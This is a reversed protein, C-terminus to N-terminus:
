VICALGNSSHISLPVVVPYWSTRHRCVGWLRVSTPSPFLPTCRKGKEKKRKEKQDKKGRKREERVGGEKTGKGKKGGGSKIKKPVQTHTDEYIHAHM